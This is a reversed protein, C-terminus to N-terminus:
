MYGNLVDYRDLYAHVFCVVPYERYKGSFDVEVDYPVVFQEHDFHIVVNRIM